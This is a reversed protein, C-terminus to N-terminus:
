DSILYALLGSPNTDFLGCLRVHEGGRMAHVNLGRSGPNCKSCSEHRYNALIWRVVISLSFLPNYPTSGARSNGSLYPFANNGHLM